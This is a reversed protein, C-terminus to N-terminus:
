GVEEEERLRAALEKRRVENAFRAMAPRVEVLKYQPPNGKVIRWKLDQVYRHTYFDDPRRDRAEDRTREKWFRHIDIYQPPDWRDWMLALFGVLLLLMLWHEALFRYAWEDKV